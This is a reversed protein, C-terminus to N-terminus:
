ASREREDVHVPLRYCVLVVVAREHQEVEAEAVARVDTGGLQHLHAFAYM